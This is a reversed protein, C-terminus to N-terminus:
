EHCNYSYSSFKISLNNQSPVGSGEPKMVVEIKSNPYNYDLIHPASEILGYSYRVAGIYLPIEYALPNWTLLFLPIGIFVMGFGGSLIAECKAKEYIPDAKNVPNLVNGWIYTQKFGVKSCFLTLDEDGMLSVDLKRPTQFEHKAQDNIYLVCSVDEIKQKERYSSSSVAEFELSYNTHTSCGCIFIIIFPLLKM